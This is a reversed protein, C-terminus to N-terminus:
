FLPGATPMGRARKTHQTLVFSNSLHHALVL